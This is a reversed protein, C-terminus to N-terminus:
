PGDSAASACRGRQDSLARGPMHDESAGTVAWELNKPRQAPTIHAPYQDVFRNASNHGFGRIPM